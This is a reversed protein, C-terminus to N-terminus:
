GLDLDEPEDNWMDHSWECDDNDCTFLTGNQTISSRCIPCENQEPEDWPCNKNPGCDDPYNSM